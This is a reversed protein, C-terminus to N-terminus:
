LKAAHSIGSMASGTNSSLFFQQHQESWQTMIQTTDSAGGLSSERPSSDAADDASSLPASVTWKSVTAVVSDTNINSLGMKEFKLLSKNKFLCYKVLVLLPHVTQEKLVLYKYFFNPPRRKLSIKPSRMTIFVALDFELKFFDSL